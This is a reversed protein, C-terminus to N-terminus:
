STESSHGECSSSALARFSAPIIAKLMPPPVNLLTANRRLRRVDVHTGGHKMPM